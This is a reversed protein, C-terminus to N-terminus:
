LNGVINPGNRAEGASEPPRRQFIGQRIDEGWFARWRLLSRMTSLTTAVTAVARSREDVEELLAVVVFDM